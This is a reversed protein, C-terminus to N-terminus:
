GGSGGDPLRARTRRRGHALYGERSTQPNSPRFRSPSQRTFEVGNREGPPMSYSAVYYKISSGGFSGGMKVGAEYTKRGLIATDIRAMFAAMSFGKPTDLFDVSGDPCAIYGDLSIAVTLVVKRMGALELRGSCM